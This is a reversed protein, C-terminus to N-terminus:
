VPRYDTVVVGVEREKRTGVLVLSDWVVRMGNGGPSIGERKYLTCTDPSNDPFPFVLPPFLGSQERGEKKFCLVVFCFM